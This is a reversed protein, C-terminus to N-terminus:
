IIQSYLFVKCVLINTAKYKSKYPEEEPDEIELLQAVEDLKENYKRDYLSYWAFLLTRTTMHDRFNVM